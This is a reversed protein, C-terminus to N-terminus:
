EEKQTPLSCIEENPTLALQEVGTDDVLLLEKKQDISCSDSSSNEENSQEELNKSEMNNPEIKHSELALAYTGEAVRKTGTLKPMRIYLTQLPNKATWQYGAKELAAFIETVKMSTGHEQLVKLVAPGLPGSPSVARRKAKLSGKKALFRFSNKFNSKSPRGRRRAEKSIESLTNELGQSDATGQFHADSLIKQLRQDLRELETKIAIAKRLTASDPVIM